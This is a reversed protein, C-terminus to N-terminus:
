YSLVGGYTPVSGVIVTQAIEYDSTVAIEDYIRFPGYVVISIKINMSIHHLTQNVGASDFSSKFRCEVSQTSEIPLNIQPGAASLFAIGSFSGLPIGIGQRRLADDVYSQSLQAIDAKVSNIYSPDTTVATVTGESDCKIGSLKDGIGSHEALYDAVARNVEMQACAAAKVRIVDTLQIKIALEFYGLLIVTLILIFATIRRIRRRLPGPRRKCLMVVGRHIM